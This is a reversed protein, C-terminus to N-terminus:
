KLLEEQLYQRQENLPKMVSFIITTGANAPGEQISTEGGLREVLKKVTALGIGTGKNGYRDESTGVAFLNFVEEHKETPIGPGNDKVEFIYHTLSNKITINVETLAKDNYKISNTVLNHLIRNIPEEHSCIVSNFSDINIVLQENFTSLRILEEKLEFINFDYCAANIDIDSTTYSLLGDVLKQLSLTSACIKDIWVKGEEDLEKSYSDKLIEGIGLIRNLPSKIDHAALYSFKELEANHDQVTLLTQELQASNERLKILLMVQRALIELGDKQEVTLKRPVRDIVCLTGLPHGDSTLLPVGAYFRINPEQVVLPNSSFRDDKTADQVIFTEEPAKIAHTCFAMSKPTESVELGHHSKFWQRHTDILSVLSIPTGCITAALRTLDDYAKEPLTDLIRLRQLAQLRLKEESSYPEINQM